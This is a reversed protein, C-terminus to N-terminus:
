VSNENISEIITEVIDDNELPIYNKTIFTNFLLQIVVIIILLIINNRVIEKYFLLISYTKFNSTLLWIFFSLFLGTILTIILLKSVKNIIKKNKIDVVNLKKNDNYKNIHKNINKYKNKDFNINIKILSILYDFNYFINHLQRDILKRTLYPSYTFYITILISIYFTTLFIIESLKKFGYLVSIVIASICIAIISYNTIKIKNSNLSM